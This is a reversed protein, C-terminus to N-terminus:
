EAGLLVGFADRGHAVVLRDGIRALGGFASPKTKLKMEALRAGTATAVDCLVGDHTLYILRDPSLALPPECVRRPEEITWVPKVNLHEGRFFRKASAVQLAVVSDAGQGADDGWVVVRDHSSGRAVTYSRDSGLMGEALLRGTAADHVRLSKRSSIYVRDDLV